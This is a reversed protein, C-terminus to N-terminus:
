LGDPFMLRSASGIRSVAPTTESKTADAEHGGGKHQWQVNMWRRNSSGRRNIRRKARHSCRSLARLERTACRSPRNRRFSRCLGSADQLRALFAAECHQLRRDLCRHNSSGSRTLFCAKMSFSTACEATSFNSTPRCGDSSV